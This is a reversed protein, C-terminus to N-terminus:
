KEETNSIRQIKLDAELRDFVSLDEAGNTGALMKEPGDEQLRTALFWLVSDLRMLELAWRFVYCFNDYSRVCFPLRNPM